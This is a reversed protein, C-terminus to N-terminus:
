ENGALPEVRLREPLEGNSGHRRNRYRGDIARVAQQPQLQDLLVADRPSLSPM